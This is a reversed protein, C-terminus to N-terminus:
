IDHPVIIRVAEPKLEIHIPTSGIVEGDAQAPQPVGISDIQISKEVSIHQLTDANRPSRSLVEAAMRLYYGFSRGPIIYVDLSRDSFDGPEGLPKSMNEFLSSNSVLVETARVQMQLGDAVLNFRKPSFGVLESFVSWVYAAFGFRRKITHPTKKMARAGIGASVNLLYYKDGVKMADIPCFSHEGTLLDLADELNLPIQFARALGNGTGAPLIGLPVDSGVLGNVVGAITGDGGAAIVLNAGNQCAQRTLEAVNEKGTTEYIDVTHDGEDFRNLLAQRIDEASANGAVPNIVAYINRKKHKEGSL